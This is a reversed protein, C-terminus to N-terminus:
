TAEPRHELARGLDRAISPTSLIGYGLAGVALALFVTGVVPEGGILYFYLAPLLFAMHIVFWKMLHVFRYFQRQHSSYDMAPPVEEIEPSPTDIRTDM